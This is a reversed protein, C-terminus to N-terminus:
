AISSRAFRSGALFANAYNGRHEVAIETILLVKNVLSMTDMHTTGELARKFARRGDASVDFLSTCLKREEELNTFFSYVATEFMVKSDAVGLKTAHRKTTSVHDKFQAATRAKGSVINTMKEALKPNVKSFTTVNGAVEVTHVPREILRETSKDTLRDMLCQSVPVATFLVHYTNDAILTIDWGMGPLGKGESDQDGRPYWSQAGSFIWDNAPHSYTRGTVVNEQFVHDIGHVQEKYWTQEGNNMTGELGDFKHIIAHYRSGPSANVLAAMEGQQHYYQTHVALFDTYQPLRAVWEATPFTSFDRMTAEYVDSLDGEKKEVSVWKTAARIFDAPLCKEVVTDFRKGSFRSNKINSAPNGHLDLVAKVSPDKQLRETLARTAIQTTIHAVPHDHMRDGTLFWIHPYMKQLYELQAPTLCFHTQFIKRTGAEKIGVTYSGPAIARGAYEGTQDRSWYFECAKKQIWTEASAFPKIGAIAADYDRKTFRREKDLAQVSELLGDLNQITWGKLSARAQDAPTM